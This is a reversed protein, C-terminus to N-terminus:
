EDKVLGFNMIKAIKNIGIRAQECDKKTKGYTATHVNRGDWGIIIIQTLSCDNLISKAKEVSVKCVVRDENM